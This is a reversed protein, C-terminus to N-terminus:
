HRCCTRASGPCQMDQGSQVADRSAPDAQALGMNLSVNVLATTFVIGGLHLALAATLLLAARRDWALMALASLGSRRADRFGDGCFAPNRVAANMAQMAEIAVGAATGNLGGITSVQWAFFVGFNAGSFLLPLLLLSPRADRMRRTEAPWFSAWCWCPVLM